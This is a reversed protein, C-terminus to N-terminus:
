LSMRLGHSMEGEDPHLLLFRCDITGRRTGKGALLLDWSQSCKPIVQTILCISIGPFWRWFNITQPSAQADTNQFGRPIELTYGLSLVLRLFTRRGSGRSQIFKLSMPRKLGYIFALCVAHLSGQLIGGLGDFRTYVATKSISLHNLSEM